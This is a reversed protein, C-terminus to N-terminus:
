SRHEQVQERTAAIEQRALAILALAEDLARDTEVWHADAARAARERDETDDAAGVGHAAFAQAEIVKSAVDNTRDYIRRAGPSAYPHAM